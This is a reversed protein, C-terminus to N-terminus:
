DSAKDGTYFRHEEDGGAMLYVMLDKIEQENLRNFLGAPMPSFPSPRTSQVESKEIRKTQSADYPNSQIMYHDDEEAIIKGTAKDGNEMEFLTYAYQDSIQDHPSYIALLIDYGSFRTPLQTLDPGVNGGEGQMRHCSACLAAQYIRQGQEVIGQYDQFGQNYINLLDESTYAKGPGEPQPLEALLNGPQYIGSLAEFKEQQEEPVNQMAKQRINEIFPKFSMGGTAGLVEYFWTFYQSRLEETWGQEARSLLTAYFIAETPPMNELMDTIVEGYMESRNAVESDILDPHTITEDRTYQELLAVSKATASSVGFYVLLQSLERNLAYDESPFYTSLRDTIQKKIAPNPDGLRITALGIARLYDLKQDYSLSEFDLRNLKQFITNKASASEMRALAVSAQITRVPDTANLLKRQIVQDSQHELGIRAAYRIFRDSHNLNQWLVEPDKDAKPTHYTELEARLQRLKQNKSLMKIPRQLEGTYSLRYLHSNLNRGGTAFYLAGDSGAIADTLPLPTGSFFEEKTGMYSSGEEKLDVFYITGFSWDFVFMGQQYKTPFALDSGMVVATPSGQGLNIVPPLNDPYYAPWKGSGTRWGFEAGSVAHCVRIPRYWPMGIDWEMDSDFVFLEGDPNFGFDYPNRFGSAILEWNDGEPEFRAVWGGPPKVKHAHGRADLFPPHLNDTAWHRPQRGNNAVKEPVKTMNGAIFYIHKQDPSLMLSHPGHEGEGDLRIIQEIDDLEGDENTDRLRYVGSGHEIEKGEQKWRENVSVYLSNFAWLLGQANGIDLPVQRVQNSDLVAGKEPMPFQYLDGWQDSAYLRGNPAEALSVWSGHQNDKPAYFIELEYGDPINYQISVKDKGEEQQPTPSCAVLLFLLVAFPWFSPKM